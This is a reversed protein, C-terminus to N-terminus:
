KEPPDNVVSVLLAQVTVEVEREHNEDRLKHPTFQKELCDAITNAKDVPQFKSVSPGHIKLRSARYVDSICTTDLYRIAKAIFV